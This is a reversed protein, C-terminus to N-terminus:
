DFRYSAGGTQGAALHRDFGDVVVANM